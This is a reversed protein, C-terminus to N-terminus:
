RQPLMYEGGTRYSWLLSGHTAQLAYINGDGSGFYLVGNRIAPHHTFKDELGTNGCFLGTVLVYRM